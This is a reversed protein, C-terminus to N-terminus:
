SVQDSYARVEISVLANQGNLAKDMAILMSVRFTDGNAFHWKKGEIM